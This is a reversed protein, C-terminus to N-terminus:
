CPIKKQGLYNKVFKIDNKRRVTAHILFNDLKIIEKLVEIGLMGSSGLILIKKKM